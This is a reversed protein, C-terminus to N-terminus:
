GQAQEQERAPVVAGREDAEQLNEPEAEQPQGMREHEDDRRRYIWDIVRNTCVLCLSLAWIPERYATQVEM